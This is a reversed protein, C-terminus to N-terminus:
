DCVINVAEQICRHWTKDLVKSVCSILRASRGEFYWFKEMEKSLVCYYALLILAGPHRESLLTVYETKVRVPWGGLISWTNIESKMKARELYAFSEALATAAEQYIAISEESWSGDKPVISLFYDLHPLDSDSIDEETEWAAALASVPGTEIRDWVNCLMSCGARIFHLWQPLVVKPGTSISGANEIIYFSNNTNEIDTAFSYVILLYSFAMIADCNEETPHDIAYRFLPLASDQHSCARITLHQHQTPDLHAMHLATCALIGSLLFQQNYALDPVVSLWIQETHDSTVFTKYSSSFYHKLIRLDLGDLNYKEGIDQIHPSEALIPDSPHSLDKNQAIGTFYRLMNGRFFTQLLAASWDRSPEGKCGHKTSWHNEM